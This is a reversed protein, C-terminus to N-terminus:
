FRCTRCAGLKFLLAADKNEIAIAMAQMYFNASPTRGPPLKGSLLDNLPKAMKAAAAAMAANPKAAAPATNKKAPPTK